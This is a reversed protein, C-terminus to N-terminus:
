LADEDEFALVPDRRTDTRLKPDRRDLRDQVILFLIVALMLGLPFTFTTAVAAAAAPKVAAQVRVVAESVVAQAAQQVARV